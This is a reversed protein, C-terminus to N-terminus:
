TVTNYRLGCSYRGANSPRGTTGTNSNSAKPMHSSACGLFRSAGWNRSNGPSLRAIDMDTAIDPHPVPATLAKTSKTGVIISNKRTAVETSESCRKRSIASVSVTTTVTIATCPM